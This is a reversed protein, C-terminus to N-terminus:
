YRSGSFYGGRKRHAAIELFEIQLFQDGEPGDNGGFAEVASHREGEASVSLPIGRCQRPIHLVGSFRQEPIRHLADLRLPREAPVLQGDLPQICPHETHRECAAHRQPKGGPFRRNDIKREGSRPYLESFQLLDIRVNSVDRALDVFERDVKGSRHLRKRAHDLEAGRFQPEHPVRNGLGARLHLQSGLRRGHARLRLEFARGYRSLPRDVFVHGRRLEIKCYIDSAQIQRFDCRGERLQLLQGKM